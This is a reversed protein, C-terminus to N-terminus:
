PKPSPLDEIREAIVRRNKWARVTRWHVATGTSYAGGFVAEWDATFNGETDQAGATVRLSSITALGMELLTHMPELAAAM